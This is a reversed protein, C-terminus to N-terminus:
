GERAQQPFEVKISSWVEVPCAGRRDARVSLSFHFHWYFTFARKRPGDCYGGFRYCPPPFDSRFADFQLAVACDEKIVCQGVSQAYWGQKPKPFRSVGIVREFRM